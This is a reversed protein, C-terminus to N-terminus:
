IRGGYKLQSLLTVMFRKFFAREERLPVAM